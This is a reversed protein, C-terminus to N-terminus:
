LKNKYIKTDNYIDIIHIYMKNDLINFIISSLIMSLIIIMILLMCLIVIDILSYNNM